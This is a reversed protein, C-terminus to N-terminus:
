RGARRRPPRGAVSPGAPDARSHLVASLFEADRPLEARMAGDDGDVFTVPLGAASVLAADDFSGSEDAGLMARLAAARYGRPYQLSRLEARDLTARVTGSADVAKVSDTVPLVPVAATAGARLADRVRELLVPVVIPWEIDLLLVPVDDEISALAAAVCQARTAPPEAVVLRVSVQQGAAVDGIADEVSAALGASAAVVVQAGPGLGHLLRVVPSVGAVPMSVAEPRQALGAPLPLIATVTM